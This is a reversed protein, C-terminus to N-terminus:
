MIVNYKNSHWYGTLIEHDKSTNLDYHSKCTKPM